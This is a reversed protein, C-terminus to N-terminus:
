DDFRRLRELMAVFRDEDILSNMERGGEDVASNTTAYVVSDDFELIVELSNVPRAGLATSILTGSVGDIRVVKVETPPVDPRM